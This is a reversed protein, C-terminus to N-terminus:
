FNSGQHQIASITDPLWSWDKTTQENVILYTKRKFRPAGEIEHLTNNKTHKEVFREPLYASGGNKTLHDLAWSASGFSLRATDADAYFEAHDRGFAEGGEVFIYNPDFKMPSSPNTSVLILTDDALTHLRFGDATSLHYTIAVDVLGDALWDTLDSTSGSWASVAVNPKLALIKELFTQGIGKKLDAHCGINCLAEIGEPLATEQKAQRWLEVMVEAYRRLKVGRATLVAGSKQRVFLTHGLHEELNQLRATVTSQTVNMQESARILSGTEAISLFTQLNVLNM